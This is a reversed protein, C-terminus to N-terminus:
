FCLEKDVNWNSKNATNLRKLIFGDRNLRFKIIFYKSSKTEMYIWIDYNM